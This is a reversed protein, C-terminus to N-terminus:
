NIANKIYDYTNTGEASLLYSAIVNWEDQDKPTLECVLEEKENYFKRNRYILLGRYVATKAIGKVELARDNGLRIAKEPNKKVENYLSKKLEFQSWDEKYDACMLRAVADQRLASLGRILTQADFILDEKDTEVKAEKGPNYEEFLAGGNAVNDPHIALFKQLKVDELRTKLMGDKMFIHTVKSDGKHNEKFFSTQTASYFLSFQENTERNLYLLPSGDKHRARIEQSIPKSGDKLVYIRERAEWNLLEPVNDSSLNQIKLVKEELKPTEVVAQSQKQLKEQLKKELLADLEDMSVEIKQPKEKVEVEDIVEIETSENESGKASEEKQAFGKLKKPQAM